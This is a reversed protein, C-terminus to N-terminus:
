PRRPPPRAGGAILEKCAEDSAHHRQVVPPSETDERHCTCLAADVDGCRQVPSCGPSPGTVRTASCGPWPARSLLAYGGAVPPATERRTWLVEPARQGPLM